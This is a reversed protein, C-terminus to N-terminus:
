HKNHKKRHFLSQASAPLRSPAKKTVSSTSWTRHQAVAAVPPPTTHSPSDPPAAPDPPGTATSPGDVPSSMEPNTDDPIAEPAVTESLLSQLNFTDLAAPASKPTRTNEKKIQFNCKVLREILHVGRLILKFNDPERKNLKKLHVRLMAIEGDLGAVQLATQFEARLEESFSSLYLDSVAALALTSM